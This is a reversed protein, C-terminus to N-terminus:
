WIKPPAAIGGTGGIEGGRVVGTLMKTAKNFGKLFLFCFVTRGVANRYVLSLFVIFCGM